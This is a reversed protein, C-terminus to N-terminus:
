SSMTRQWAKRVRDFEQQSISKQSYRALLYADTIQKLDDQQRPFKRGLSALYELPTETPAHAAGKRAAWHLLSRYLARVSILPEESLKARKSWRKFLSALWLLLRKVMQPFLSILSRFLNWSVMRIQFQVPEVASAKQRAKRKRLAFAILTLIALFVAFAILWVIVPSIGTTGESAPPPPTPSPVGEEPQINCSFPFKFEKPPNAAPKQQADLWGSLAAFINGLWRVIARAANPSFILILAMGPLMVSAGALLLHTLNPSRLTTAQRSSVWRALFLAVPALLFFLFAPPASGAVQAFVLVVLIDMQLRFAFSSYNMSEHPVSHGLWWSLGCLGMRVIIGFVDVQGSPLSSALREGAVVLIVLAVLALEMTSVLRHSLAPRPLALKSLLALPYLLLILVLAYIPARLLSVLLYLYSLEMGLLVFWFLTSLRAPRM